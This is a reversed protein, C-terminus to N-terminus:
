CCCFFQIMLISKKFFFNNNGELHIVLHIRGLENNAMHSQRYRTSTLVYSTRRFTHQKIQQCFKGNMVSIFKMEFM